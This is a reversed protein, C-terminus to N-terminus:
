QQIFGRLQNLKNSMAEDERLINTSGNLGPLFIAFELFLTKKSKQSNIKKGFAQSLLVPRFLINTSGNLGYFYNSHYVQ